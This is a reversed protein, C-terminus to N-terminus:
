ISNFAKEIIKQERNKAEMSYIYKATTEIKSHGIIQQAAKIDKGSALYYRYIAYHRMTHSSLRYLPKGDKCVYYVQNLDLDKRIQSFKATIVNRLIHKNKSQNKYSAFFLYGDIMKHKNKIYYFLLNQSLFNQLKREVPKGTKKRIFNVVLFNKDFNSRKLDNVDGAGLGLYIMVKLCMKMSPSKIRHEIYERIRIFEQDTIHKIYGTTKRDAM